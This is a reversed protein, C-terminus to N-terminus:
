NEVPGLERMLCLVAGIEQEAAVVAAITNPDAVLRELMPGHELDLLWRLGRHIPAFLNSAIARPPWIGPERRNAADHAAIIATEWRTVLASSVRAGYTMVETMRLAAATFLDRDTSRWTCRDPSAPHLLGLAIVAHCARNDAPVHVDDSQMANRMVNM